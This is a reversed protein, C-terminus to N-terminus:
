LLRRHAAYTAPISAHASRVRRPVLRAANPRPTNANARSQRHRRGMPAVGPLPGRVAYRRLHAGRDPAAITSPSWRSTKTATVRPRWEARQRRRSRLL